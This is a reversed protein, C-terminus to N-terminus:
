GASDIKALLTRAEFTVHEQQTQTLSEGDACPTPWSAVLMLLDFMRPAVAILRADKASLYDRAVVVEGGAGEIRPNRWDEILRWPGPTHTTQTPMAEEKAAALYDQDTADPNWPTPM